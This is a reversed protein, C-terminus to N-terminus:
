SGVVVRAVALMSIARASPDQLKQARQLAAVSDVHAAAESVEEVVAAADKEPSRTAWVEDVASFAIDFYREALSRDGETGTAFGNAAAERARRSPPLKVLSETHDSGVRGMAELVSVSEEEAHEIEGPQGAGQAVSQAVPNGRLAEIYAKEGLVERLTDTTLNLAINRSSGAKVRGLWELLKLGADRAADKQVEPAMRNFMAALNPSESASEKTEPLPLASFMKAFQVQSWPSRVGSGEMVALMSRAALVGSNLATELKVRTPELTYKSCLTLAGLISHEARVVAAPSLTEIFSKATTCDAHGSALLSVAPTQGSAILEAELRAGERAFSRALKPALPAAVNAASNLVRLRDQPDPQPLAVAVEIVDLVFKKKRAKQAALNSQRASVQPTKKSASARPKSEGAWLSGAVALIVASVLIRNRLVKM